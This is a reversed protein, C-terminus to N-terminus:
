GEAEDRKGPRYFGATKGVSGVIAARAALSVTEIQAAVEKRDGTFKIKILDEAKFAAEIEKMVSQTVGHKGIIIVPNLTQLLGRMESKEAGTLQPIEPLNDANESM